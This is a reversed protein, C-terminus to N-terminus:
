DLPDLSMAPDAVEIAVSYKARGIHLGSDNLMYVDCAPFKAYDAPSTSPADPVVANLSYYHAIRTPSYFHVISSKSRPISKPVVAVLVARKLLSPTTSAEALM